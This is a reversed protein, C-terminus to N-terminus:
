KGATANGAVRKLTMYQGIGTLIITLGGLIVTYLPAGYQHTVLGYGVTLAVSLVLFLVRTLTGETGFLRKSWETLASAFVGTLVGFLTSFLAWVDAPLTFGSVNPAPEATTPAPTTASAKVLDFSVVGSMLPTPLPKIVRCDPCPDQASAVSALPTFTFAFLSVVLAVIFRVQKM